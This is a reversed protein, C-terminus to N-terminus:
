KKIEVVTLGAKRASEVLGSYVKYKLDYAARADDYDKKLIAFQEATLGSPKAAQKQLNDLLQELKRLETEQIEMEQLWANRSKGNYLQKDEAPSSAPPAGPVAALGAGKEPAASAQSAPDKEADEIRKVKKRYKKPVKGLDETFNYTGSEDVWSYTEAGLPSALLLVVCLGLLSKM